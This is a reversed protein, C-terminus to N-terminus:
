DSGRRRQGQDRATLAYKTRWTSGNKLKPPVALWAAGRARRCDTLARSGAPHRRGRRVRHPPRTGAPHVSVHASHVTCQNQTGVTVRQVLTRTSAEEAADCMQKEAYAMHTYVM